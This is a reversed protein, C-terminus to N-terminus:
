ARSESIPAVGGARAARTEDITILLGLAAAGARLIPRVTTRWDGGALCLTGVRHLSRDARPVFVRIEVSGISKDHASVHLRRM